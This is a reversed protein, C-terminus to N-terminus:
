LLEKGRNVNPACLKLSPFLSNFIRASLDMTLLLSVTWPILAYRGDPNFFLLPLHLAFGVWPIHRLQPNAWKPMCYALHGILLLWHLPNALWRGWQKVVTYTATYGELSMCERLMEMYTAPPCNSVTPASTTFFIASGGYYYNHALPFFAPLSGIGLLFLAAWQGKMIMQVTRFVYLTTIAISLEPRLVIVVSLCIGEIFRVSTSQFDTKNIWILSLLLGLFFFFAANSEAMNSFAQAVYICLGPSSRLLIFFMMMAAAVEWRWFRRLLSYIVLPLCFVLVWAHGLSAGFLMHGLAGFYRQGPMFFFVDAGGRIFENLDGHFLFEMMQYSQASYFLGDEGAEQYPFQFQFFHHSFRALCVAMIVFVWFGERHRLLEYYKGFSIRYKIKEITIPFFFLLFSFVLVIKLTHELIYCLRLWLSPTFSIEFHGDHFGLVFLRKGIDLQTIEYCPQTKPTEEILFPLSSCFRGGRMDEKIDYALLFPVRDRSETENNISDPYYIFFGDQSGSPFTHLFSPSIERLTKYHFWSVSREYPDSLWFSSPAFSWPRIPHATNDTWTGSPYYEFFLKRAHSLAGSPVHGQLYHNDNQGFLLAQKREAIRPGIPFMSLAIAALIFIMLAVFSKRSTPRPNSLLLLTFFISVLIFQYIKEIPPTVLFFFTVALLIRWSIM